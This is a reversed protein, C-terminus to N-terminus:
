PSRVGEEFDLFYEVSLPLCLHFFRHIWEVRILLCPANGVVMVLDRSTRNEIQNKCINWRLNVFVVCRQFRLDSWRFISFLPSSFQVVGVCRGEPLPPQDAWSDCHFWPSLAVSIVPSWQQFEEPSKDFFNQARCSERWRGTWWFRRFSQWLTRAVGAVVEKM